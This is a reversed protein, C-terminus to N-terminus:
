KNIVGTKIEILIDYPIRYFEMSGRFRIAMYNWALNRAKVSTVANIGTIFGERKVAIRSGIM